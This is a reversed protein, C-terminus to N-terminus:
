LKGYFFADLNAPTPAIAKRVAEITAQGGWEKSHRRGWVCLSSLFVTRPQQRLKSM